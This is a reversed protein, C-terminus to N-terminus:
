QDRLGETQRHGGQGVEVRAQQDNRVFPGIEGGVSWGKCVMEEIGEVAVVGVVIISGVETSSNIIVGDPLKM